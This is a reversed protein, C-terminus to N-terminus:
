LAQLDGLGADKHAREEKWENVLRLLDDRSSVNQPTLTRQATQTGYTGKAYGNELIYELDDGRSMASCLEEVDCDWCGEWRRHPYIALDQSAIEHLVMETNRGWEDIQYQSLDVWHRTHFPTQDANEREKLRQIFVGYHEHIEAPAEEGDPVQHHKRVADIYGQALINDNWEMSLWGEPPTKSNAALARPPKSMKKNVGNYLCGALEEGILHQAAFAYGTIQHDNALMRIDPKQSYTKNEILALHKEVIHEMVGDITGVLYIHPGVNPFPIRFSVEPCIIRYGKSAVPNDWGYRDFYQVLLQQAAERSTILRYQEEMSMGTGVVKVYEAAIKEIEEDSWRKVADLPDEGLAQAAVGEHFASGTWLETRPAGARVWSQRNASTLDWKRRCRMYDQLETVSVLLPHEETPIM